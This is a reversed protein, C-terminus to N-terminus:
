SMGSHITMINKYEEFTISGSGDTDAFTFLKKVTEDKITSDMNKLAKSLEAEDIEGSGDADIDDFAKRLQDSDLEKSASRRRNVKFGGLEKWIKSADAMNEVKAHMEELQAAFEKSKRRMKTAEKQAGKCTDGTAEAGLILANLEDDLGMLSSPNPRRAGAPHTHTHTSPSSCGM